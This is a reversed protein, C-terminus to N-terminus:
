KAVRFRMAKFDITFRSFRAVLDRGISGYLLDQDTGLPEALVPVNELLTKENGIGVEVKPLKYASASRVGGAGGIGHKGKPLGTFEQRFAEYYRVTFVSSDAGTDFFMLLDRGNIRLQLLPNLQQMFMKAGSQDDGSAVKVQVQNDSTFTLEGLVSLVPFGLIADIQYKGKPLPITLAQDQLVLAVMNHVTATGIKIEPVIATHLLNEAGTSGQTQATGESLKLGMKRAVSETIVSFNAGTDLIWSNTVGNVTLDTDITGIASHHTALSFPGSFDVTQRPAGSLLHNVKGDDDLSQRDGTKFQKAFKALLEAYAHDADAYRFTKVFDDAFTRLAVAARRPDKAELNPVIPQLLSISKDLDNRRNALVGEFYSRGLPDLEAGPLVRELELYDRHEVLADFDPKSKAWGCEVASAVLVLVALSKALPKAKM